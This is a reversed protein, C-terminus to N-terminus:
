MVYQLDKWYCKVINNSILPSTQVNNILIREEDTLAIEEGFLQFDDQRETALEMYQEKTLDDAIDWYFPGVSDPSPYEVYIPRRYLTDKYKKYLSTNTFRDEKSIDYPPTIKLVRIENLKPCYDFKAKVNVQLQMIVDFYDVANKLKIIYLFDHYLNMVM